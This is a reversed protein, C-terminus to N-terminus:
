CQGMSRVQCLLKSYLNMTFPAILTIPQLLDMSCMFYKLHDIAVKLSWSILHKINNERLQGRQSMSSSSKPSAGLDKKEDLLIITFEKSRSLFLFPSLSEIVRMPPWIHDILGFINCKVYYMQVHTVVRSTWPNEWNINCNLTCMTITLFIRALILNPQLYTSLMILHSWLCLM